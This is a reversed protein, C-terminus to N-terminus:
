HIWFPNDSVLQDSLPCFWVNQPPCPVCCSTLPSSWTWGRQHIYRVCLQPQSTNKLSWCPVSFARFCCVLRQQWGEKIVLLLCQTLFAKFSTKTQFVTRLFHLSISTQETETLTSVAFRDQSAKTEKKCYNSQM